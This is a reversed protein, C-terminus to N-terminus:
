RRTPRHDAAPITQLARLELITDYRSTAGGSSTKSEPWTNAHHNGPGHAPLEARCVERPLGLDPRQCRTRAKSPIPSECYSILSGM